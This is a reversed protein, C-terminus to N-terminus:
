AAVKKPKSGGGNLTKNRRKEALEIKRAQCEEVRQKLEAVKLLRMSNEKKVLDRGELKFYTGRTVNMLPRQDLTRMRFYRKGNPSTYDVFHVADIDALKKAIFIEAKTM